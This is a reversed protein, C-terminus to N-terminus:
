PSEFVKLNNDADIYLQGDHQPTNTKLNQYSPIIIRQLADNGLIMVNSGRGSM